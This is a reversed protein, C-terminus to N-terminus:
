NLAPTVIPSMTNLRPTAKRIPTNMRATYLCVKRPTRNELPKAKERISRDMTVARTMRVMEELRASDRPMTPARDM